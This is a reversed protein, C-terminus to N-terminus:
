RELMDRFKETREAVLGNVPKDADSTNPKEQHQKDRSRKPSM